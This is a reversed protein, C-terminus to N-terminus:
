PITSITKLSAQQTKVLSYSNMKLAWHLTGYYKNGEYFVFVYNTGKDFKVAFEAEGNTFNLKYLNYNIYVGMVGSCNTPATKVKITGNLNKGENIDVILATPTRIVEFSTSVNVPYYRLDGDFILTVDYHGGELDALTVNTTSNDIFIENEVGNIILTAEGRLTDPSVSITITANQGVNIDDASINISSDYRSVKFIGSVNVSNYFKTEVFQLTINYEGEAFKTLPITTNGNYLYVIKKRTGDVYLIAQGQVGKPGLTVIAQGTQSVKIESVNLKLDVDLKNINVQTKNFAKFHNESGDYIIDLTYKQPDLGSITCKGKGNVLDVTYTKGDLKLLVVGTPISNDASTVEVSVNLDDLFTINDTVNFNVYTFIKGVDVLVRQSFSEMTNTVEYLGKNQTYNFKFDAHGNILQKNSTIQKGNVNTKFTVNFLPILDIGTLLDINNTWSAKITVSDSINLKSYDPTLNLILWSNLKENVNIKSGVKFPNENTNWWNNDLTILDGGNYYVDTSIGDFPANDIFANYTLNLKGSNYINPSGKYSPTPAEYYGTNNRFINGKATLSGLNYIAGFIFSFKAREIYNNEIISNLLIFDGTNYIASGMCEKLAVSGSIISNEMIIEGANAIAAGYGYDVSKSKSFTTNYISLKGKNYVSGGYSFLGNTSLATNNIFYSNLITLDGFNSIAGGYIYKSMSGYSLVNGIFSCNEITVKANKIDLAAGYVSKDYNISYSEPSKYANIFKINKFSVCVDDPIEFIYDRNLGNITTEVAGIFNLSKNITLKNNSVGKFEGGSLYVTGNENSLSIAKDITLVPSDISGTGSDDGHVDVYIVNGDDLRVGEDTLNDSANVSSISLLM